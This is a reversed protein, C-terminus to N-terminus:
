GHAELVRWSNTPVWTATNVGHLALREVAFEWPEVGQARTRKAALLAVALRNTVWLRWSEQSPMIRAGAGQSPDAGWSLLGDATIAATFPVGHAPSGSLCRQLRSSAECLGEFSDFYAVLKDPRLLGHANGGVKFALASTMALVELTARFVEPLGECRPSIYLKYTGGGDRAAPQQRLSSWMLWGGAGRDPPQGNLRAHMSWNRRLLAHNRDEIGLYEAVSEPRPFRRRWSESLPVSNYLYLRRSMSAADDVRLAQAYRLADLSLRAIADHGVRTRWEAHLAECAAAGSVFSGDHEIELVEDLVLEAVAMSCQDGYKNRIYAPLRSSQQLSFFLLATDHCIAKLVKGPSNKTQLVGYLGPDNRSGTLAERQEIPLRDLLVLQYRPNARFTAEEVNRLEKTRM